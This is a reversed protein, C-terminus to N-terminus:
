EQHTCTQRYSPHQEEPGVEANRAPLEGATRRWASRALSSQDPGPHRDELVPRQGKSWTAHAAEIRCPEGAVGQVGPRVPAWALAKARQGPGLEPCSWRPGQGGGCATQQRAAVTIWAIPRSPGRFGRCQPGVDDCPGGREPLGGGGRLHRHGALGADRTFRRTELCRRNIEAGTQPLINTCTM